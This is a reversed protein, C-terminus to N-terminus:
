RRGRRDILRDLATKQKDNLTAYFADFNPRVERVADLGASLMTELGALREPPTGDRGSRMTDCAAGLKGSASRVSDRLREWAPQQDPSFNAFGEIMEVMRNLRENRDPGCFMPGMGFRRPGGRHDFRVQSMMGEPGWMMGHVADGPPPPPPAASLVGAGLAVLGVAGALGALLYRKQM